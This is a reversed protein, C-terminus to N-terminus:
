VFGLGLRAATRSITRLDVAIKNMALLGEHELIAEETCYAKM